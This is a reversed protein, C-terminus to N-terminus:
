SRSMQTKIDLRMIHDKQVDEGLLFDHTGAKYMGCKEYFRIANENREWVGLWVYEKGRETAISVAHDLLFKGLGKRQHEKLIYIREVELSAPDNIDTQSPAENIRVYGAPRGNMSLLIIDVNPDELVRTMEKVNFSEEICLRINEPTNLEAYTNYFTKISIDRVMELDDTTCKRLALDMIM